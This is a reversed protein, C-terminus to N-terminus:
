FFLGCAGVGKELVKLWFSAHLRSATNILKYNGLHGIARHCDLGRVKSECLTILNSPTLELDPHSHIPKIHHVELKKASGCAACTPFKELHLYRVKRWKPSRKTGRPLRSLDKLYTFIKFGRQRRTCRGQNGPRWLPSWLKVGCILNSALLYFVVWAGIAGMAACFTLIIVWALGTTISKM